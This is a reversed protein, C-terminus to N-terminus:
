RVAWGVAGLRPGNMFLRASWEAHGVGVELPAPHEQGSGVRVIPAGGSRVELRGPIKGVPV